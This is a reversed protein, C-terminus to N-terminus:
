GQAPIDKGNGATEAEGFLRKSFPRLIKGFSRAIIGVILAAIITGVGVGNLRAFMFFSIVAAIVTMSADFCVKTVGFETHFRITVAKVFAEGPLMVVDAIVETYVGFGLIVCGVILALFRLVYNEPSLWELLIMSFDIFYGFVISIPIQLLSIKKFKKGLIIIQLAILFLSLLITFGGLTLPLGLSLVYPISSIPSTGLNAKTIFAVGFSNIFLGIFFVLYRKWLKNKSM